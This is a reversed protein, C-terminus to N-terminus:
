RMNAASRNLAASIVRQARTVARNPPLDDHQVLCRRGVIDYELHRVSTSRFAEDNEGFVLGRTAALAAVSQSDGAPFPSRQKIRSRGFMATCSGARNTSQAAYLIAQVISFAHRQLAVVLGGLSM